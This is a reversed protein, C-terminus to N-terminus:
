GDQRVLKRIRQLEEAPAGLRRASELKAVAGEPDGTYTLSEALHLIAPM